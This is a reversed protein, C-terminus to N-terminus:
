SPGWMRTLIDAFDGVTNERVESEWNGHLDQSRYTLATKSATLLLVKPTSYPTGKHSTRLALEIGAPCRKCVFEYSGKDLGPKTKIAEALQELTAKLQKETM